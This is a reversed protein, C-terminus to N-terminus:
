DGDGWDVNKVQILLTQQM